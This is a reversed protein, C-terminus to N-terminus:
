LADPTDIGHPFHTTPTGSGQVVTGGCTIVSANVGHPFHTTGIPNVGGKHVSSVGNVSYSGVEIGNPFHTTKDSM